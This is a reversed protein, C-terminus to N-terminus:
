KLGFRVAYDRGEAQRGLGTLLEQLSRVYDPVKEHSLYGQRARRPCKAQSVTAVLDLGQKYYSAAGPRDGAALKADGCTLLYDSRLIGLQSALKLAEDSLEEAQGSIGLRLYAYAALRLSESELDHLGYGATEKRITELATRAEEFGGGDLRAQACLMEASEGCRVNEKGVEAVVKDCAQPVEDLHGSAYAQKAKIGGVHCRTEHGLTAEDYSSLAVLTSDLGPLYGLRSWVDAKGVLSNAVLEREGIETGISSVQDFDALAQLYEGKAANAEGLLSLAVGYSLKDDMAKLTDLAASLCTIASDAKGVFIYFNGMATQERAMLRPDGAQRALSGAQDLKERAARLHGRNVHTEAINMLSHAQDRIDGIETRLVLALSDVQAAKDYQGMMSYVYGMDSLSSAMHDKSGMEKRIEFSREFNSLAEEFKGDSQYIQGIKNLANSIGSKDGIEQRLELSRLFVTLAKDREGMIEYILGLNGLSAATARKDGLHEDLKIAADYYGVARAFQNKRKYIVGIANLAGAEGPGNGMSRYTKLAEELEVLARDLDNQNILVKALEFRASVFKPDLQIARTFNDHALDWTSVSSYVLGLNYYGEPDDPFAAIFDKYSQIAQDTNHTISAHQAMIFTRDAPLVRDTFKVVKDVAAFSLEQAKDDYGLNKYAEAARAYAVAFDPDASIAGEFARAADQFEGQYTFGLGQAFDAAAKVSKTRETAVERGLDAAIQQQSLSFIQKAKSSLDDIMALLDGESGVVTKTGIGDWNRANVVRLTLRLKDGVKVVSGLAFADLDTAKAVQSMVEPTALDLVEKGMDHVVKLLREPSMVRFYKSQALDAALNEPIGAKLWDLSADQTQNDFPLVALYIRAKQFVVAPKLVFFLAAAIGVVALAVVVALTWRGLRRRRKATRSEIDSLVEDVSSYRDEPHLELAKMVLNDLWAPVAPNAKSPPEARERLRKMLTSIITDAKFAVQGTLMEYLVLGFSYIDTRYDVERGEAQEPSMYEPTGMIQGTVTLGGGEASKAIGFDTVYAAGEKDILINQPKLDRHIVGAEHACKLAQAVQSAIGTAEAIGLAGRESILTKLDKGEIFPMSIFKIGEAEAIDYIRLVHKHTVRRALVIEERFRRIVAEDRALDRRIVKLAVLRDIERDRAKYVWGMGGRGIVGLIEYRAGLVRGEALPQEEPPSALTTPLTPDALKALDTQAITLGCAPCKDEEATVEHGCHPCREM